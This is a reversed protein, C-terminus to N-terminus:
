HNRPIKHNHDTKSGAPELFLFAKGIKLFARTIIIGRLKGIWKKVNNIGSSASRLRARNLFGYVGNLM